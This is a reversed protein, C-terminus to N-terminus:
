PPSVVRLGIRQFAAIALAIAVSGTVMALTTSNFCRGALLQLVLISVISLVAWTCAPRFEQWRVNALRALSLFSAVAFGALVVGSMGSLAILSPFIVSFVFAGIVVTLCAIAEVVLLLSQRRHMDFLRDTFNAATFLVAPILLIRFPIVAGQWGPGLTARVVIDANLLSWAVPASGIAFLAAIARLASATSQSPDSTAAHHFYPRLVSSLGARPWHAVREAQQLFGADSPTITCQPLGLFLFPGRQRIAGLAAFPVSFRGFEPYMSHAKFLMLKRGAGRPAGFALLIAAPAAAVAGGMVTGDILTWGFMSALIQGCLTGLPFAVGLAALWGFWGRKTAIMAGLRSIGLSATFTFGLAFSPSSGCDAAGSMVALWALLGGVLAMLLLAELSGRIVCAEDLDSKTLPVADALRLGGIAAPVAVWVMFEAQHGFESPPYIRAVVATSAIAVGTSGATGAFLTRITRFSIDVSRKPLPKASM